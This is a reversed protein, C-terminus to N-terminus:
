DTAASQCRRRWAPTTPPRTVAEYSVLHLREPHERLFERVALLTEPTLTGELWAAGQLEALHAAEEIAVKISAVDTADIMVREEAKLGRRLIEAESHDAVILSLANADAWREIEDLEPNGASSVLSIPFPSWSVASAIVHHPGQLHLIFALMPRPSEVRVKSVGPPGSPEMDILQSLTADRDLTVVRASLSGPGSPIVDIRGDIGQLACLARLRPDQDVRELTACGISLAAGLLGALM